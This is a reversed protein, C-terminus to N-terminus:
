AKVVLKKEILAGVVKEVQARLADTNESPFAEGLLGVLDEMSQPWKLAEWLAAAAPNLVMTDRTDNHMVLLDDEFTESDFSEIRRFRGEFSDM